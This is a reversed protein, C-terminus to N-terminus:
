GRTPLLLRHCAEAAVPRASALIMREKRFGAKSLIAILANSDTVVGSARSLLSNILSRSASTSLFRDTEPGLALTVFRFRFEDVLRSVACADPHVSSCLVADFPWDRRLRDFTKRLARAALRPNWRTGFIPLTPTAVFEPRLAVDAARPHWDGGSWLPGPRLAVARIEWRDALARLIEISEIGREPDQGDPFLHSIFLLRM